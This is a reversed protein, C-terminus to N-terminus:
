FHKFFILLGCLLRFLFISTFYCHAAPHLHVIYNTQLETHTHFKTESMLSPVHVPPKSFLTSLLINTSLVFSIIPPHLFTCLLSSRQENEKGLMILIILNLLIHHTPCTASNLLLLIYLNNTCVVLFVLVYTLPYYQYPGQVSPIPHHPSFQNQNLIPVLPSSKHIRYHVKPEMFHQSAM